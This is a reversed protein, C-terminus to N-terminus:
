EEEECKPDGFRDVAVCLGDEPNQGDMYIWIRHAHDVTGNAAFVFSKTEDTAQSVDAEDSKGGTTYTRSVNDVTSFISIKSSKREDTAAFNEEETLVKIRLGAFVEAPPSEPALVDEITEGENDKMKPTAEAEKAANRRKWYSEKKDQGVINGDLTWVTREEEKVNFLRTGKIVIKAMPEGDVTDNSYTVLVPKQTILAVSRARRVTALVDRTAGKLRMAGRGSGLTVVAVSAMAGMIAIVTLLEILTFARRFM